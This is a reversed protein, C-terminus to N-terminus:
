GNPPTGTCAMPVCNESYENELNRLERLRRNLLKEHGRVTDRLKEGPGIRHPLGGPNNTLDPYRKNYIEDRTNAIKRALSRCYEGFPDKPTGGPFPEIGPIPLIPDAPAMPVPRIIIPEVWPLVLGSLGLPDIAGVPNQNM